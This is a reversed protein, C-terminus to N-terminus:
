FWAAKIIGMNRRLVELARRHFGDSDGFEKIKEEQIKIAADIGSNLVDATIDDIMMPPVDAQSLRATLLKIIFTRRKHMEERSMGAAAQELEDDTLEQLEKEDFNKNM